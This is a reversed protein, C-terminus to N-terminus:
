RIWKGQENGGGGGVAAETEQWNSAEEATGSKAWACYEDGGVAEGHEGGGGWWRRVWM